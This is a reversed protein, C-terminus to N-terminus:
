RSPGPPDMMPIVEGGLRGAIARAEEPTRVEIIAYDGADLVVGARKLDATLRGVDGVEEPHYTVLFRM